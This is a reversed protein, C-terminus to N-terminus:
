RKEYLYTTSSWQLTTKDPNEIKSM